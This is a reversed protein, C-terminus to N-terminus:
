TTSATSDAGYEITEVRGDQRTRVIVAKIGEETLRYTRTESKPGPGPTYKSKSVDLRWQGIVPDQSTAPSQSAGTMSAATLAAVIAILPTAVVDITRHPGFPLRM